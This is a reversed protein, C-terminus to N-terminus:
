EENKLYYLLIGAAVAVNLSESEGFIPLYINKTTENLLNKNVGSGENGVILLFEQTPSVERYDVANQLASGYVPIGKERCAHITELGDVELIPFHFVAGQTARIVKDNYLDVTGKTYLVAKAGIAEATRILTGFNGPDQVQDILLYSCGKELQFSPTHVSCIAAVGQSTEIQSLHKMVDPTVYNIEEIERLWDTPIDTGEVILLVEIRSKYKFAEEVLHMGEIFFKQQAMRGKKTHLKKWEKVKLNQISEIRKHM